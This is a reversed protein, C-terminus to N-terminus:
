LGNHAETDTIISSIDSVRVHGYSFGDAIVVPALSCAGVCKVSRLTYAGDATTEGNKIGLCREFSEILQTSRLAHCATGDCVEILYRGTKELSVSSYFQVIRKLEDKAIDMEQSLVDLADEPIYHYLRQIDNLVNLLLGTKDPYHKLIAHTKHAISFRDEKAPQITTDDM